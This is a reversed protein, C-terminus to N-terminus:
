CTLHTCNHPLKLMRQCQREKPTPQEEPRPYSRGAAAGSRPRPTVGRTAVGSRPRPTAGRPLEQVTVTQYERGSGRVESMPHSREAVRAM